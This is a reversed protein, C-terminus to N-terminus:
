RSALSSSSDIEAQIARSDAPVLGQLGGGGGSGYSPLVVEALALLVLWGVVVYLRFRVLL